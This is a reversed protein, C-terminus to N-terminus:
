WRVRWEFSGGNSMSRDGYNGNFLVSFEMVSRRFNMMYSGGVSLYGLIKDNDLLANLKLGNAIITSKALKPALNGRIGLGANLGWLGWKTSFYKDYHAGLDLYILNYLSKAYDQMASNDLASKVSIATSNLMKYDVGLEVGLVGWQRFNFDKGYSASIGFGVNNPKIKAVSNSSVENFFAFLDGRAKIYMDWVLDLRYNLGLMLNANKISFDKDDKDSLSGYGFGFHAGLTNAYDLKGSFATIFGGDFGSLNYNGAEYFYNHNFFPTFLFYYKESGSGSSASTRTTRRTQLSRSQSYFFHENSKISELSDLALITANQPLDQSDLALSEANQPSDLPSDLSEGERANPHRLPHTSEDFLSSVRRITRMQTPARNTGSARKGGYKDRFILTNSHLFMNNMVKINTKYLETIPTNISTNANGIIFYDGYRTLPYIDGNKLALLDFYNSSLMGAGNANTIIKDIRYAKGFEFTSDFDIYIKAGASIEINNSQVNKLVFHSTKGLLQNKDGAQNSNYGAFENFTTQNETIKISYNHIGLKTNGNSNGVFHALKGGSTEYYLNITGTNDIMMKEGNSFKIGGMVGRNKITPYDNNNLPEASIGGGIIGYNEITSIRGSIISERVANDTFDIIGTAKNTLYFIESGQSVIIGGSTNITASNEFNPIKAGNSLTITITGYNYSPTTSNTISTNDRTITCNNSNPCLTNLEVACVVGLNALLTLNALFAFRFIGGGHCIISKGIGFVSM